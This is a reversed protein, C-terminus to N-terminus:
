WIRRGKDEFTVRIGHRRAKKTKAMQATVLIRISVLCDALLKSFQPLIPFYVALGHTQLCTPFLMKEFEPNRFGEFLSQMVEIRIFELIPYVEASRRHLRALRM